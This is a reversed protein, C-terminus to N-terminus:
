SPEDHMLLMVPGSVPGQEVHHIRLSGGHGDDIETYHPAFPYDAMNEFCADPTRLVHGHQDEMHSIALNIMPLSKPISRSKHYSIERDKM